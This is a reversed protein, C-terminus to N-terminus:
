EVFGEAKIRGPQLHGAGQQYHAVINSVEARPM